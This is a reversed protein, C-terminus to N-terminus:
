AKRGLRRLSKRAKARLLQGVERYSLYPSLAIPKPAAIEVLDLDRTFNSNVVVALYGRALDKPGIGRLIYEFHHGEHHFVKVLPERPHIPIPRSKQLWFNYWSFEYPAVALADRYDWGRVDLFNRVFDELVDASFIQHGHCTLIVPADLQIEAQILRLSLERDRWYQDFYRPEVKLELDEVLVSYPFGDPALFDSARIPRIFQADSDVCFYNRALGLEWFALKVIEQNVYGPRLGGTSEQVLHRGLLDEGLVKVNNGSLSDFEATDSPPVVVYMMLNEVNYKNFSQVLREAYHLDPLYSKLLLAVDQQSSTTM